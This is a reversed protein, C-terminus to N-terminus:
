EVLRGFMHGCRLLFHRPLEDRVVFAMTGDDSGHRAHVLAVSHDILHDTQLSALCVTVSRYTEHLLLETLM